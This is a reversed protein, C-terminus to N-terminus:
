DRLGSLWEQFGKLEDKRRERIFSQREELTRLKNARSLMSNCAPCALVLNQKMDEGADSRHHLHDVTASWYSSFSALLGVECDRCIGLDREFVEGWLKPEVVM